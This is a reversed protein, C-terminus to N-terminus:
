LLLRRNEYWKWDHQRWDQTVINIIQGSSNQANISLSKRGVRYNVSQGSVVMDVTDIGRYLYGGLSVSVFSTNNINTTFIPQFPSPNTKKCSSFLVVTVMIALAFFYVSQKM